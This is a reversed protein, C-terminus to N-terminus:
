GGEVGTDYGRGRHRSVVVPGISILERPMLERSIAAILPGLATALAIM